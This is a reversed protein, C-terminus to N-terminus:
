NKPINVFSAKLCDPYRDGDEQPFLADHLEFMADAATNVLDLGTRATFTQKDGEYGGALM